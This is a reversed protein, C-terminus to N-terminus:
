KKPPPPRFHESIRKEAERDIIQASYLDGALNRAAAIELDTPAEKKLDGPKLEFNPVV